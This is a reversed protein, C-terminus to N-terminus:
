LRAARRPGASDPSHVRAGGAREQQHRHRRADMPGALAALRRAVACGLLYVVVVMRHPTSIAGIGAGRLTGDM